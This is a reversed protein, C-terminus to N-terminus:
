QLVKLGEQWMLKGKVGGGQEKICKTLQEQIELQELEEDDMEMEQEM